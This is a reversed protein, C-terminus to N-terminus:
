RSAPHGGAHGRHSPGRRVVSLGDATLDEVTVAQHVEDWRRLNRQLANIAALSEEFGDDAAAVTTHIADIGANSLTETVYSETLEAASLGDMVFLENHLSSAEASM